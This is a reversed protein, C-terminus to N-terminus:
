MELRLVCAPCRSYKGPQILSLYLVHEIGLETSHVFHQCVEVGVGTVLAPQIQRIVKLLRQEDPRQLSMLVHQVALVCVRLDGLEDARGRPVCIRLFWGVKKGRRKEVELVWTLM